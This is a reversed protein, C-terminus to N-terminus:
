EKTLYMAALGNTLDTDIDLKAAVLNTPNSDGSIKLTFYAYTTSMALVVLAGVFVLVKVMYSNNGSKKMDKDGIRNM